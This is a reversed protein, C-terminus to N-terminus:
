PKKIGAIQDPATEANSRVNQNRIALCLMLARPKSAVPVAANQSRLITIAGDSSGFRL